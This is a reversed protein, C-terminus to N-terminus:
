LAFHGEARGQTGLRSTNEAQRSPQQSMKEEELKMESSRKALEKEITYSRIALIFRRNGVSVTVRARQSYYLGGKVGSTLASESLSIIPSTPETYYMCSPSLACGQLLGGIAPIPTM